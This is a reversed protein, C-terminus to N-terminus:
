YVAPRSDLDKQGGGAGQTFTQDTCLGHPLIQLEVEHDKPMHNNLCKGAVDQASPSSASSQAQLRHRLSIFAASAAGRQEYRGEGKKQEEEEEQQMAKQQPLAKQKPMAKQKPLPLTGVLQLQSAKRKQM